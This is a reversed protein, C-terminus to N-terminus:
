AKDRETERETERERDRDRETERLFLYVNLLRLQSCLSCDPCDCPNSLFCLARGGDAGPWGLYHKDGIGVMGDSQANTNDSTCFGVCHRDASLMTDILLRKMLLKPPGTTGPYSLRNLRGVEAGTMIKHNM